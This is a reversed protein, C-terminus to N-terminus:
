KASKKKWQEIVERVLPSQVAIGLGLPTHVTREEFTMKTKDTQRQMGIILGIVYAKGDVSVVVPAGSDGGFSSSDVLFTKASSLPTLPHSAISGRRLIPWGAKNAELKAPFCPICIDQGVRVKEEKAFDAAAIQSNEFPKIDVGEPLKMAIAAVDLEKHQKWLLEKGKRVELDVEKRVFGGNKVPARFIVKCKEGAMDRFVHAATVLLHRRGPDAQDGTAVFFGTGSTKGDTIRVTARLADVYSEAEASSSVSLFVAAFFTTISTKM